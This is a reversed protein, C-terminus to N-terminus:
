FARKSIQVSALICTQLNASALICTQLNAIHWLKFCGINCTQLKWFHLFMQKSFHVNPSKCFAMVQLLWHQLKAVKLFASVLKQLLSSQPKAYLILRIKRFKHIDSKITSEDCRASASLAKAMDHVPPSCKLCITLHRHSNVCITLHRHANLGITLHRRTNKGITTPHGTTRFFPSSYWVRYICM